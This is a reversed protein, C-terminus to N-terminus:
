IGYKEKVSKFHEFTKLNLDTENLDPILKKMLAVLVVNDTYAQEVAHQMLTKGKAKAVVTIAERLQEVFAKGAPPRGVTNNPKCGKKLGM